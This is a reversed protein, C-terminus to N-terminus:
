KLAKLIRSILIGAATVLPVALIMVVVPNPHFQTLGDRTSYMGLPISVGGGGGGGNSEADGGGGFGYSVFAVPVLTTGDADIPEGYALQVARAKVGDSLHEVIHM